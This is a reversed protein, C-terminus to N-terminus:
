LLLGRLVGCPSVNDSNPRVESPVILFLLSLSLSREQALTPGTTSTPSAAETKKQKFKKVQCWTRQPLLFCWRLQGERWSFLWLPGYIFLISNYCKFTRQMQRRQRPGGVSPGSNLLVEFLWCAVRSNAVAGESECQANEKYSELKTFSEAQSQQISLGWSTNCSM